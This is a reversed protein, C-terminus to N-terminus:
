TNAGAVVIPATEVDLFLLWRRPCVVFAIKKGARSLEAILLIAALTKGMGPDGVFFNLAAALIIHRRVWKLQEATVGAM